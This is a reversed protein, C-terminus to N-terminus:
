DISPAAASVTKTISQQLIGSRFDHDRRDALCKRMVATEPPFAIALDTFYDAHTDACHLGNLFMRELTPSFGQNHSSIAVPV